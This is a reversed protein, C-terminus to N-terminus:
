MHPEAVCNLFCNCPAADPCITTSTPVAKDGCMGNCICKYEAIVVTTAAMIVLAVLGCKEVIKRNMVQAGTSIDSVTRLM